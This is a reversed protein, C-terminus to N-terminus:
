KYFKFFNLLNLYIFGIIIKLRNQMFVKDEKFLFSLLRTINPDEEFIKQLHYNSPEMDIEMSSLHNFNQIEGLTVM